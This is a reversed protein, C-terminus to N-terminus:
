YHIESKLETILTFLFLLMGRILEEHNKSVLYVLVCNEVDEMKNTQYYQFISKIRWKEVRVKGCSSDIIECRIIWYVVIPECM